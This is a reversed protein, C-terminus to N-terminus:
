VSLDAIIDILNRVLQLLFRHLHLLLFVLHRLDLFHLVLLPPQLELIKFNLLLGVLHVLLIELELVLHLRKFDLFLALLSRVSLLNRKQLRLQLM